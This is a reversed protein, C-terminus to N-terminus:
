ARWKTAFQEVQKLDADVFEIGVRYIRQGDPDPIEFRAWAVLGTVRMAADEDAFTMRVRSNPNLVCTSVIQAGVASLDVLTAVNGDVLVEIGSRIRVRPARRTGHQDEPPKVPPPEWRHVTRCGNAGPSLVLIQTDALAPDAKIRNLLANGRPSAAFMQELAITEPKREIITELARLPESDSFALVESDPPLNSQLSQLLDRAAILVTCAPM